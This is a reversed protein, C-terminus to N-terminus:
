IKNFMEAVFLTLKSQFIKLAFFSSKNMKTKCFSKNTRSVTVTHFTVPKLKGLIELIKTLKKGVM